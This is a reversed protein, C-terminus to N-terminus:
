SPDDTSGLADDVATEGETRPHDHHIILRSPPPQEVTAQPTEEEPQTTM